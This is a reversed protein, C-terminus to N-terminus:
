AGNQAYKRERKTFTRLAIKGISFDAAMAVITTISFVFVLDLYGSLLFVCVIWSLILAIAVWTILYKEQKVSHNVLREEPEKELENMARVFAADDEIAMKLNKRAQYIFFPIGLVPMARNFRDLIDAHTTIM